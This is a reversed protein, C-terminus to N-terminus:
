VVETVVRELYPWALDRPLGGCLPHLLLIGKEAVHAKAEAVTM